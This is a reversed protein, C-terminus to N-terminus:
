YHETLDIADPTSSHHWRNEVEMDFNSDNDFFIEYEYLHYSENYRDYDDVLSKRNKRYIENYLLKM